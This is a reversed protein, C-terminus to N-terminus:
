VNLALSTIFRPADCGVYVDGINKIPIPALTGSGNLLMFNLAVLHFDVICDVSLIKELM